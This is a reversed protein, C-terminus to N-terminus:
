ENEADGRWDSYEDLYRFALQQFEYASMHKVCHLKEFLEKTDTKYIELVGTEEYYVFYLPLGKEMSANRCETIFPKEIEEVTLANDIIDIIRKGWYLEEIKFAKKLAERSILDGQLRKSLAKVIKQAKVLPLPEKFEIVSVEEVTPVSNILKELAEGFECVETALNPQYKKYLDWIDGLIERSILDGKHQIEGNIM